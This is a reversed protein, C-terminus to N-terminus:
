ALDSAVEGKEGKPGDQALRAPWTGEEVLRVFTAAALGDIARMANTQPRDALRVLNLDRTVQPEGLPWTRIRGEAVERGVVADPLISYGVGGEVLLKIQAYSDLDIVPDM